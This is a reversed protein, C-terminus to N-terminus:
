IVPPPHVYSKLFKFLSKIFDPTRLPFLPGSFKVPPINPTSGPGAGVLGAQGRFKRGARRCIGPIFEQKHKQCVLPLRSMAKLFFVKTKNMSIFM